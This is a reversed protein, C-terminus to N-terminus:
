STSEPHTVTFQDTSFEPSDDFYFGAGGMAKGYEPDLQAPRIYRFMWGYQDLWGEVRGLTLEASDARSGLADEMMQYAGHEEGFVERLLPLVEPRPMVMHLIQYLVKPSVHVEPDNPPPKPLHEDEFEFEYM